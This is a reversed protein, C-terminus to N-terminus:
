PVLLREVLAERQENERALRHFLRAVQRIPLKDAADRYYRESQGELLLAQSVWERRDVMPDLDVQYDEGDLGTISELIMETVAERRAREVLAARKSSGRALERCTEEVDGRAAAEYFAAARRELALAFSMIAGFTGLEM